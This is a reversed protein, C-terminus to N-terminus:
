RAQPRRLRILGEQAMSAVLRGDQSYYEGRALGRSGSSSPTDHLCFHWENFDFPRHFWMAHDLSAMQLDPTTPPLGHPLLTTTLLTTDSAYAMFAQHMRPDPGIASRARMWVQNRTQEAAPSDPVVPRIEIPREGAPKPLKGEMVSEPGVPGSQPRPMPVQFDLGEEPAQFSAAFNFIQQGHQIAAVRRTTFSGGDRSRDVDFLIPVTADGPRIFYCHLSHCLRDEVTAYAAMLSQAIVQGGFLRGTKQESFGRFLNVEIRELTLTQKLTESTDM